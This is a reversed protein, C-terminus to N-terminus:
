PIAFNGFIVSTLITTLDFCLTSSIRCAKSLALM